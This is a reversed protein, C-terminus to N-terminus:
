NVFIQYHGEPLDFKTSSLITAINSSKNLLRITSFESVPLTITSITEKPIKIEFIMSGDPMKKWNSNIEGFPSSYSCNVFSLGDPIHPAISFRKFGPFDNMPKIGGPYRYFWASVSGFMPHNNSYVDDSGAWHEWLTTAGKDIMYGWGPFATSNVIEFVKDSYGNKSLAELIYKTGFIGTTFHRGPADDIARLLSDITAQKDKEPVIDFYLLTAYFTQKNFFETMNNLKKTAIIKEKEPLLNIYLMSAERSQQNILDFSNAGWYMSLMQDKIKQELEKFRIQNVSDRMLESLRVMIKASNLYAATGILQVPVNIISEHDGIGKDVVGDPHIRAAKEMWRLNYDYMERVIATDGYYSLLKDQLELIAAEFNLGCYHLGVYPAGDIFMSDNTADIWDYLTKRYFSKMDFNTIFAENTAYLDGGYGFKERGPCDSQVSMLNSLFTRRTADQISNVLDSSCSFSNNNIVNSSLAIGKIDENKPKYNLGAIEMYRYVRFSFSPSYWVDTNDGFIYTGGQAALDPAGEGGKGKSKIQGAVATMPNLEGNPHKLEGFRFHLTDGKQGQLRIKFTGTFNEGMDVLYTNNKLQTIEVPVIENIQQIFPFFTKQLKGGPGPSIVASKWSIDNFNHKNWNLLERSADYTEGLYVNNRIIPGYNYKWSTDSNIEKTKGNHFVIKISAIFVPRGTTLSNRLNLNGWFKLPLPNYFGNGLSVGICNEGKTILNRIDYEAYYIRKGFDTWAPDLYNKDLEKGNISASYYGAATIYLRASKIKSKISFKKRFVPAPDDTYFLSDVTPLNKGDYIWVANKFDDHIPSQATLPIFVLILLLICLLLSLRKM